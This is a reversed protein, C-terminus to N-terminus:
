KLVVERLMQDVAPRHGFWKEFGPVAQHLLMGLGDIVTNGKAEAQRLLSTKLPNYVIDTVLAWPRLGVLDIDLDMQGKMGLSTTNVVLDSVPVFASIQDWDIVEIGAGLDEKLHEARIRTRNVVFVKEAGNELLAFVVARAAGGAGLVLATQGKASWDPVSQHINEIFGYADTNDAEIQGDALFKLTNAAGIKQASDTIIQCYELVKEKHPITVNVGRFGMRPLIKIVDALDDSHVELPIYHGAIRNIKLWHNHLIPSKSHAIPCGVVGALPINQDIM